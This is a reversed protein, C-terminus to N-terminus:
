NFILDDVTVFEFREARLNDIIEQAASVSTAYGDHMLIIDNEEVKTVVRKVIEAHNQISWDKPDVNWFVEIMVTKCELGNKWEGFPPRLYMPYAGTIDYILQNTRDVQACAKDDSLQKLNEHQYSHNGITHGEAQIRKVLDPYKEVEEGLLFFTAKVNKEKLVDLMQPTFEPHPGDDFTLAVKKITDMQDATKKNQYLLANSFLTRQDIGRIQICIVVICLLVMDLIIIKKAVNKL